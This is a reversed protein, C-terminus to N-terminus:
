RHHHDAKKIIVYLEIQKLVEPVALFLSVALCLEAMRAEGLSYKMTGQILIKEEIM